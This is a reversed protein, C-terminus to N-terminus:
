MDYFPTGLMSKLIACDEQGYKTEYHWMMDDKTELMKQCERCHHPDPAPQPKPNSNPNTLYKTMYHPTSPASPPISVIQQMSISLKRPTRTQPFPSINISPHVSIGLEPISPSFSHGEQPCISCLIPPKPMRTNKTMLFTFIRKLNRLKRAPSKYKSM